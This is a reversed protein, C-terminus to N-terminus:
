IPKRNEGHRNKAKKERGKGCNEIEFPEIYTNPPKTDANSYISANAFIHMYFINEIETCFKLNRIACCHVFVCLRALHNQKNALTKNRKTKVIKSQGPQFHTGCTVTVSFM